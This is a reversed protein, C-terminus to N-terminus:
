STRTWAAIRERGAYALTHGKQAYDVLLGDFDADLERAEAAVEPPRETVTGDPAQDWAM